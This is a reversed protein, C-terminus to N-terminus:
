QLSIYSPQDVKFMICFYRRGYIIVFAERAINSICCTVFFIFDHRINKMFCFLEM